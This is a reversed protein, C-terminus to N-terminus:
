PSSIPEVCCPSGALGLSGRLSTLEWESFEKLVIVGEGCGNLGVIVLMSGDELVM